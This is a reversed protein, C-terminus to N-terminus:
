TRLGSHGDIGAPGPQDQGDDEGAAHGRDERLERRRGQHRQEHALEGDVERWALESIDTNLTVPRTSASGAPIM